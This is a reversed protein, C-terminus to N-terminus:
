PKNLNTRLLDVLNKNKNKVKTKKGLEDFSKSKVDADKKKKDVMDAQVKHIDVEEFEDLDEKVSGQERIIVKEQITTTPVSLGDIKDKISALISMLDSNDERTDPKQKAPVPYEKLIKNAEAIEEPTAEGPSIDGNLLRNSKYIEPLDPMFRYVRKEKKKSPTFRIGAKGRSIRVKELM